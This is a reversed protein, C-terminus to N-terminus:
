GTTKPNCFFAACLAAIGIIRYETNSGGPRRLPPRRRRRVLSLIWPLLATPLGQLLTLGIWALAIVAASEPGSLGTFDLPYLCLFWHYLM